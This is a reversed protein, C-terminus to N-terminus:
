TRYMQLRIGMTSGHNYGFLRDSGDSPRCFRKQFLKLSRPALLSNLGYHIVEQQSEPQPVFHDFDIEEGADAVEYLKRLQANSLSRCQEQRKKADLGDLYNSIDAISQNGDLLEGFNM